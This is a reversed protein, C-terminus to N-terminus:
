SRSERRERLRRRTLLFALYAFTLGSLLAILRFVDNYALINAERTAAQSLLAGGEARALAPDGVVRGVGASGAALRAQVLPNTPEITEVLAASNAKERVVQYTGLLASGGLGGISNVIGFLAIFSIIHGTGAALARTMGFLLAPGLFFAASFAILAQTVYLQPARTLSTAHSDVFSAIAVLGIALMIPHTLRAPDITIASLAVGAVTAAFVILFFVILQDNTQGLVTLLGVAGYTQESLVIRAMITVIAFRVIDASALWRTNLLPNARRHEIALAAVLMPIAALLAWGIWPAQTWWVIRGLGLVAAFLAMAGAFLPFTVFDLKEFARIRVTPPLRFALVAALSLTALGLEFLYLTRWQSMALLEPSFLRALPTACQPIGIGVVVARLRWEAPFAQMLYYLALSSLPAGAMGSAARVLIASGFDRVFLHAFTFAVYLVLFIIAFPRLGFQQRFKILLLNISVNTMVYVTPLWAVQAPDLGLSGGLTATNAAVLANGFGGTLGVLIAVLAYAIRRHGPHAPSGPSGPMTPLEHPAFAWQEEALFDRLRRVLAM